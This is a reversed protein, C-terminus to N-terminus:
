LWVVWIDKHNELDLVTCIVFLLRFIPKHAGKVTIRNDVILVWPLRNPIFISHFDEREVAVSM